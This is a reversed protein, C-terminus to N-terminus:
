HVTWYSPVLQHLGNNPKETAGSDPDASSRVDEDDTGGVELHFECMEYVADSVATVAKGTPTVLQLGMDLAVATMYFVITEPSFGQALLNNIFIPLM